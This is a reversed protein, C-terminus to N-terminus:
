ILFTCLVAQPSADLAPVHPAAKMEQAQAVLLVHTAADIALPQAQAPSVPLRPVAAPAPKGSTMQCCSGPAAAASAAHAKACEAMMPCDPPCKMGSDEAPASTRCVTLALAPSVLAALVLIVAVLKFVGNM